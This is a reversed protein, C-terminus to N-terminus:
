GIKKQLFFIYVNILIYHVNHTDNIYCVKNDLVEITETYPNYRVSFRRNMKKAFERVKQQADKFSDAVFYVQINKKM